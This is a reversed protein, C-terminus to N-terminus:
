LVYSHVPFLAKMVALSVVHRGVAAWEHVLVRQTILVIQGGPVGIFLHALM